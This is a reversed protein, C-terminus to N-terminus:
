SVFTHAKLADGVSAGFRGRPLNVAPKGRPLARASRWRARSFSAAGFVKAARANAGDQAAVNGSRSGRASNLEVRAASVLRWPFNVGARRESEEAGSVERRAVEGASLHRM